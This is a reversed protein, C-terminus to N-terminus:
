RLLRVGDAPLSLSAGDELRGVAVIEYSQGDGSTKIKLLLEGILLLGSQDRARRLNWAEEFWQGRPALSWTYGISKREAKGIKVALVLPAGFDAPGPEVIPPNRAPGSPTIHTVTFPTSYARTLSSTGTTPAFCFPQAKGDAQAVPTCWVLEADLLPTLNSRMAIGYVPTGAPLRLKDRKMLPDSDAALRGGLGHRVEVSFIEDGPSATTAIAPKGLSVLFPIEGSIAGADAPQETADTLPWNNRVHALLTGPPLGEVLSTALENENNERVEVKFRGIEYLRAGDPRTELFKALSDCRGSKPWQVGEARRIVTEFRLPGTFTHPDRVTAGCARYGVHFRPLEAETAARYALPEISKADQLRSLALAENTGLLGYRSSEFKGDSDLDQYCVPVTGMLRPPACWAIRDPPGDLRAKGEPTRTVPELLALSLVDGSKELVVGRAIRAPQMAISPSSWTRALPIGGSALAPDIDLVEIPTTADITSPPAAVAFAGIGVLALSATLLKASM